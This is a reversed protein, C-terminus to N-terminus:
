PRGGSEMEYKREKKASMVWSRPIVPRPPEWISCNDSTGRQTEGPSRGFTCQRHVDWRRYIEAEKWTRVARHMSGQGVGRHHRYRHSRSDNTGSSAERLGTKNSFACPTVTCMRKSKPPMGHYHGHYGAVLRPVVAPSARCVATPNATSSGHRATPSAM